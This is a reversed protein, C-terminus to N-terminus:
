LIILAVQLVLKPRPQCLHLVDQMAEFLASKIEEVGGHAQGVDLLQDAAILDTRLELLFHQGIDRLLDFVLDLPQDVPQHLFIQLFPLAHHGIDLSPAGEMRFMDDAFANFRAFHAATFQDICHAFGDLSNDVGIIAVLFRAFQGGM